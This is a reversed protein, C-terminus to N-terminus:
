QKGETPRWSPASASTGALLLYSPGPRSAKVRLRTPAKSQRQLAVCSWTAGRQWLSRSECFICAHARAAGFEGASGRQESRLEIDNNSPTTEGDCDCVVCERIAALLGTKHMFECIALPDGTFCTPEESVVSLRSAPCGVAGPMREDQQAAATPQGAYDKEDGGPAM